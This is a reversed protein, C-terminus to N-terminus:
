IWLIWHWIARSKLMQGEVLSMNKPQLSTNHHGLVWWNHLVCFSKLLHFLHHGILWWNTADNQLMRYICWQRNSWKRITWCKALGLKKREVTENPLHGQEFSVPRNSLFQNAQSTQKITPHPHSTLCCFPFTSTKSTDFLNQMQFINKTEVFIVEKNIQKQKGSAFFVLKM